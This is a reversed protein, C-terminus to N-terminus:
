SSAEKRGFRQSNLDAYLVAANSTKLVGTEVTLLSTRPTPQLRGSVECSARRKFYRKSLYMAVRATRQNYNALIISSRHVETHM